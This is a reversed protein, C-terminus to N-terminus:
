KRKHKLTTAASYDIYLFLISYLPDDLIHVYMNLVNRMIMNLVYKSLNVNQCSWHETHIRNETNFTKVLIIIFFSYYLLQMDAM